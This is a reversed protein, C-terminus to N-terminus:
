ATVLNTDGDGAEGMFDFDAVTTPNNDTITYTKKVSEIWGYTYELSRAYDLTIPMYTVTTSTTSEHGLTGHYVIMTFRTLGPLATSVSNDFRTSDVVRNWKHYVTHDHQQGPELSVTTVRNIAFYQQFEPSRYPTMGVTTYSQGAGFDTLGKLWAEAPTDLTTDPPARKTVIDYLMLKCNTNAANRVRLVAKCSRLFFKVPASTSVANNAALKMTSLDTSLLVSMGGGVGQKGQTCSFSGSSNVFWTQPSIIKRYMQREFRSLWRKGVRTVSSSQNDGHTTARGIRRKTRTRTGTYSRAMRPRVRRGMRPAASSPVSPFKRKRTYPVPKWGSPVGYSGYRPLTLTSSAGLRRYRKVM